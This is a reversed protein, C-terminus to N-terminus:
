ERNSSMHSLLDKDRKRTGLEMEGCQSLVSVMIGVQHKLKKGLDKKDSVTGM